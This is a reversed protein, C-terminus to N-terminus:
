EDAFPLDQIERLFIGTSDEGKADYPRDDLKHRTLAEDGPEKRKRTL